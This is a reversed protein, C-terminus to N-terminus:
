LTAMGDRKRWLVETTWTFKNMAAVVCPGWQSSDVHYYTIYIYMYTYNRNIYNINCTAYM